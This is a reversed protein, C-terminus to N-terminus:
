EFFGGFNSQTATTASFPGNYTWLQSDKRKVAAYCNSYTTDSPLQGTTSITKSTFDGLSTYPYSVGNDLSLSIQDCTTDTTVAVNIQVDNATVTRSNVAAYRPITPLADSGSASLSGSMLYLWGDIAYSFTKTGDVNHYITATGSLLQHDGSGNYPGGQNSWTGSGISTTDVNGSNIKVANSQFYYGGTTNLGAQWNVVTSNTATSNSVWQWQLYFYGGSYPGTNIRGSTAM